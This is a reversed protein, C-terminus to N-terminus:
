GVAILADDQTRAVSDINGCPYTMPRNDSVCASLTHFSRLLLWAGLGFFGISELWILSCDRKQKRTSLSCYVTKLEFAFRCRSIQACCTAGRSTKNPNQSRACYNPMSSIFASEALNSIAKQAGNM